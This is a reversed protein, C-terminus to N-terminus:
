RSREQKPQRNPLTVLYVLFRSRGRQPKRSGFYSCRCRVAFSVLECGRHGVEVFFQRPRSPRSAPYLRPQWLQDPMAAAHAPASVREVPRATTRSGLSCSRSAEARWAVALSPRRPLPPLLPSVNSRFTVVRLTFRSLDKSLGLGFLGSFAKRCDRANSSRATLTLPRAAGFAFHCRGKGISHAINSMRRPGSGIRRM